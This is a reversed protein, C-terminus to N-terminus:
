RDLIPGDAVANGPWDLLLRSHRKVLEVAADAPPGEGVRYARLRLATADPRGAAAWRDLQRDLQDALKPGDPGYGRVAVPFGRGGDPEVEGIPALMALGHQGALLVTGGGMGPPLMSLWPTVSPEPILLRCMTPEHAALWLGFGDWLDVPALQVSSLREVMSQGLQAHLANIDVLGPNVAKVVADGRPLPSITESVAGVGRLRVFACGRVSGVTLYPPSSAILDFAVSLQSGAVSLPLLLRGGPALQHWWAPQIDWSGVTLIIRDYPADDPYGLAGDGTAVTVGNVGAQALHGSAGNVLDDDIDVSVVAGSPGVLEALLAANYGSGAGIELVRHGPEPALQELMIAVMSPQSASSITMGDRWKTAVAEDRYAVEVSSEPLFVHRPVRRFARELAPDGIRGCELLGDVMANRLREALM